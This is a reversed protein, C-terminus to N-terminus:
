DDKSLGFIVRKIPQYWERLTEMQNGPLHVELFHISRFYYAKLSQKISGTRGKKVREFEKEIKKDPMGLLRCNRVVMSPMDLYADRNRRMVYNYKQIMRKRAIISKRPDMSISDEQLYMKVLPRNIFYFAYSESLRYVLDFDQLRPMDPDFKIDNLCFRRILITQTSVLSRKQLCDRHVIGEQVGSVLDEAGNEKEPNYKLANCFVVDVSIDSTLVKLQVEIKNPIWEDDSDQFAIFTGKAADIGTNRAVCAGQNNQSIVRVRPDKISDVIMRTSDTSGDDVVIVDLNHYTQDLVSMLSRKITNERNYVPIIVSVLPSAEKQPRIKCERESAKQLIGKAFNEVTFDGKYHYDVIDDNSIWDYDIDKESHFLRMYRPDYYPMNVINKCNSILKKNYVVAEYYRYSCGTQGDAVIELLCRSSAVEKLMEKYPVYNSKKIGPTKIYKRGRIDTLMIRPTLKHATANKAIQQLLEGRGKEIGIFFLDTQRKDIGDIDHKPFPDIFPILGYRECDEPDFSCVFDFKEFTSVIGEWGNIDRTIKISDFLILYTKAKDGYTEKIWDLLVPDYLRQVDRGYMFFLHYNSDPELNLSLVNSYKRWRSAPFGKMHEREEPLFSKEYEGRESESFCYPDLWQIDKHVSADSERIEFFAENIIWKDSGNGFIIVKDRMDSVVSSGRLNSVYKSGLETPM